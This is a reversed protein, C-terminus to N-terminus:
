MYEQKLDVTARKGIDNYHKALWAKAAGRGADRLQVLFDWRADLKSDPTLGPLAELAALRHMLVRKYEKPSLKGDDILRAVFDIARMERLLSSNFNIENVRNQIDHATKPVGKREIPNIQVLLIDPSQSNYILPYIAPNGMYGGDWYPAGDIIVAQFLHPLCASALIHDVTLERGEFIRIKGSEVNTAAIHLKLGQSRRVKAFDIEKVLFDRLPNLGLPNFAYPSASQVWGAMLAAGPFMSQLQPNFLMQLAARQPAPLRADISANRWFRELQAKAAARGGELLGEALVVANMAGASTGSIAEIEIREDDLLADIVGWTFAGHAGGGQLALSIQKVGAGAADKRTVARDM